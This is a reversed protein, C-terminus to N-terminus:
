KEELEEYYEKLEEYLAKKDQLMYFGAMPHFSIMIVDDKNSYTNDIENILKTAEDTIFEIDETNMENKPNNVYEIQDYLNNIVDKAKGIIVEDNNKFFKDKCLKNFYKNIQEQM